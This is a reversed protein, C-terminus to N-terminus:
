QEDAKRLAEWVWERLRDPHREIVMRNTIRITKIGEGRLRTDRRRDRGKQKKHIGGDVEICRRLGWHYFDLIYDWHGLNKTVGQYPVQRQFGLPELTEWMKREARTPEAKMQEARTEVFEAREAPTRRM